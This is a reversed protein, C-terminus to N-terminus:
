HNNTIMYACTYLVNLPMPLSLPICLAINLVVTCILGWAEYLHSNSNSVALGISILVTKKIRTRASRHTQIQTHTNTNIKTDNNWCVPLVMYILLLTNSTWNMCFVWLYILSMETLNNKERKEVAVSM